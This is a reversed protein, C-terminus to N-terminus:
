IRTTPLLIWHEKAQLYTVGTEAEMTRHTLGFKRKGYLCWDYYILPEGEKPIVKAKSIVGAIVRSGFLTVNKPLPPLIEVCSNPPVFSLM